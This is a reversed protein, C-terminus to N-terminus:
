LDRKQPLEVVTGFRNGAAEKDVYKLIIILPSETELSNKDCTLSLVSCCSAQPNKFAHEILM